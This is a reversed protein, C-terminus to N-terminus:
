KKVRFEILCHEDGAALSKIIEMRLPKETLSTLMSQDLAMVAQCVEKGAGYLGMVCKFAKIVVKEGSLEVIEARPPRAQLAPAFFSKIAEEFDNAQLKKGAKRGEAVGLEEFLSEILPLAGAGNKEYVIRALSGMVEQRSSALYRHM